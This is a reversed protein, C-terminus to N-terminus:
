AQENYCCKYYSIDLWIIKANERIRGTGDQTLKNKKTQQRYLM